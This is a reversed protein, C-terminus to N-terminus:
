TEEEEEISNAKVTNLILANHPTIRAEARDTRRYDTITGISRIKTSQAVFATYIDARSQQFFIIVMNLPVIDEIIKKACEYMQRSKTQICIEIKNGIIRIELGDPSLIRLKKKLIRYTYPLREISRAKVIYRRDELTQNDEKRIGLIKEWKAITQEDMSELYLNREVKQLDEDLKEEQKDNQAYIQAIDPIQKIIVPADFM